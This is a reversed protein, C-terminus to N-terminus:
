IFLIPDAILIALLGIEVGTLAPLTLFQQVRTHSLLCFCFRM